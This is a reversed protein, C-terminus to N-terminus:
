AWSRLLDRLETEIEYAGDKLYWRQLQELIDSKAMGEERLDLFYEQAKAPRPGWLGLETLTEADLCILKPISKTGNTLYKEILGPYQDRLIYHTTILPSEAGIKEIVPISQAADGCWGETIILWFLPRTLSLAASKTDPSVTVTKGLRKMRQRNLRSFFSRTESQVPGTSRGEEILSDILALYESFSMSLRIYEALGKFENSSKAQNM